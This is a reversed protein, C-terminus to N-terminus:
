GRVEEIFDKVGNISDIVRVDFGLSKLRKHNLLQLKRPKEGLRKLEVFIAKGGPLLVLRDPVGNEGSIFKYAKGGLKDIETKLKNEIRSELM